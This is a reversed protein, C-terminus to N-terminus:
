IMSFIYLILSWLCKNKFKCCILSTVLCKQQCWFTTGEPSDAGARPSYVHIFDHFFFFFLTYFWVEFLNKSVHLLHGFHCSTGTSMLIKDGLTQWGQGPAIYMYFIMFFFFTYFRSWPSKKSVQLSHGFRCSTETSMFIKDGSTTQGQGAAIYKILDHFSTNLTLNVLNKKIQLFHGYHHPRGTSM